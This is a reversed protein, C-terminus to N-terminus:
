RSRIRGHGVWENWKSGYGDYKIYFKNKKVRLVKANWWKSNWLVKVRQGVYYGGASKTTKASSSAGGVRIRSPGVWEDWNSGYGKYHIKCKTGASNVGIVTASWWKKGWLVQASDGVKCLAAVSARPTLVGVFLLILFLPIIKKM